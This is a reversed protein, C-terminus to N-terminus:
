LFYTALTRVVCGMANRSRSSNTGGADPGTGSSSTSGMSSIRRRNVVAPMLRPASLGLRVFAEGDGHVADAALAVAALAALVRLPEM